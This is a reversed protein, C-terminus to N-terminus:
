RGNIRRSCSTSAQAPRNTPPSAPFRCRAHAATCAREGTTPGLFEITINRFPGAGNDTIGHVLGAATFRTDGDKFAVPVPAAGPKVNLIESDGLAIGIYDHGHRHMLTSAGPDVTVAFVRVSANEIVLHHHSESTIEVPNQALASVSAAAFLSALIM